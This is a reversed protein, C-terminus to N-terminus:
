HGLVPIKNIVLLRLLLHQQEVPVKVVQPVKHVQVALQAKHVQELLVKHVLVLQAKLAVQEKPELPM